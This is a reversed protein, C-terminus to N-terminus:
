ATATSILDPFDFPSRPLHVRLRTAMAEPRSTPLLRHYQYYILPTKIGFVWGRLQGDAQVPLQSGLHGSASM